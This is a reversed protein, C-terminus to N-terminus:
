VKVSLHGGYKDILAAELMAPGAPGEHSLHLILMQMWRDRDNKYGYSSHDWRRAPNSTYGFKFIFPAFKQRLNEMTRICHQLVGGSTRINCPLRWSIKAHEDSMKLVEMLGPDDTVHAPLHLDEWGCGSMPQHDM